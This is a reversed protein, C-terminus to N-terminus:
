SQGEVKDLKWVGNERVLVVHLKRPGMERSQLEVTATARDGTVVMKSVSINKGWEKDFDQADLFYDGDLGDPGKRVRDIEKLLRESAYRKLEARGKTFPDRNGILAQVYWQYFRHIVGEPSDVSHDEAYGFTLSFILSLIVVFTKM